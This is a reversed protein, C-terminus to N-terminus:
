PLSAAAVDSELEKIRNRLWQSLAAELEAQTGYQYLHEITRGQADLPILRCPVKHERLKEPVFPMLKCESCPHPRAPDDFNLCSPSDEFILSPRWPTRPSRGYGGDELFELEFRLLELTENIEAM